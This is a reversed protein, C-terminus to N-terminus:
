LYRSFFAVVRRRYEQPDLQDVTRHGAEPVRWMEKPQGAAAVLADLDAPPTYRDLDGHIFLIPRPAIQGVWRVPEYRFLNARLRLSTVAIMLWALATSLWRPAGREVGWAATASLLRAPGGDSIVAKAETCIPATLMAVIGGMSFGLLGIREIGKSCVFDVAGLADQRELYGVTSLRGDSRGHARFDFMLVNFGAVSLAPVYQVDPDMSGGQGHLSIVARALSRDGVRGRGSQSLPLSDPVPVPSAPIWWGRLTVGDRAPFAVEEFALGYEAPSRTEDPKRRRTLLFSLVVSVALLALVVSVLLWLIMM